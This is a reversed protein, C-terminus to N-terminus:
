SCRQLFAIIIRQNVQSCLNSHRQMFHSKLPKSIQWVNYFTPLKFSNLVLAVAQNMKAFHSALHSIKKISGYQYHLKGEGRESLKNCILTEVLCYGVKDHIRPQPQM